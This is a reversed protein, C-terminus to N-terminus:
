RGNDLRFWEDAIIRDRQARNIAGERLLKKFNSRSQRDIFFRVAHNIL